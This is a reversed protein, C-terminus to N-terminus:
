RRPRSNAAIYGIQRQHGSAAILIRLKNRIGSSPGWSYSQDALRTTRQAAGGRISQLRSKPTRGSIAATLDAIAHEDSTRCHQQFVAIAEAAWAIHKAKDTM